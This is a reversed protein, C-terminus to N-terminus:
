TWRHGGEALTRVILEGEGKLYWRADERNWVWPVGFHIFCPWRGGGAQCSVFSIIQITQYTTILAIPCLTNPFSLFHRLSPSRCDLSHGPFIGSLNFAVSKFPVAMCIDPPLDNWASPVASAFARPHRHMGPVACLWLSRPTLSLRSPHHAILLLFHDISTHAM